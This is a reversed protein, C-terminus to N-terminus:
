VRDEPDSAEIPLTEQLGSLDILARVIPSPNRVTVEGVARLDLSTMVVARLGTSDVFSVGSMDVAIREYGAAVYRQLYSRLDDSNSMDIEGEVAVVAKVGDSTVTEIVMGASGPQGRRAMM